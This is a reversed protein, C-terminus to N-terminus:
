HGAVYNQTSTTTEDEIQETPIIINQEVELDINETTSMKQFEFCIIYSCKVFYILFKVYHLSVNKKTIM